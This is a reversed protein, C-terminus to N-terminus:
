ALVDTGYIFILHLFFATAGNAQLIGDELVYM